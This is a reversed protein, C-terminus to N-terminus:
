RQAAAKGLALEALELADPDDVDLWFRGTVAVTVARRQDALRQVGASLSGPGGAEVDARIAEALAPTARFVGTDVADFPEILKAIRVIRGRADSEVRTADDLDILPNALDRDVALCLAAAGLPAEVVARVIAPDVLHDSMLLLYDGGIHAAGALVSHGNALLPDATRVCAIPVQMDRGLGALCAEVRDAEHGTVITFASAGGQRARDVVHAILPRGAIPTLPKSSSVARLRSGQGAALILCNM